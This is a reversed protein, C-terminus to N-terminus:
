CGGANPRGAPSRRRLWWLGAGVVAGILDAALDALEASRWPLVAQWLEGSLGFVAAGLAAVAAARGAAPAGIAAALLAAQVAFLVVHVLKDANLGALLGPPGSPLPVTLAFVVLVAWSAAAFRTRRLDDM